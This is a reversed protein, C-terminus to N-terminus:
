KVESGVIGGLILEIRDPNKKYTRIIQYTIDNYKAQQENNYDELVIEFRYEAKLGHARAQYLENQSVELRDAFVEKESTAQINDGYDNTDQSNKSILTIIDNYLM